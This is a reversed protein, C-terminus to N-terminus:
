RGAFGITREGKRVGLKRRLEDERDDIEILYQDTCQITTKGTEPNHVASIIRDTNLIIEKGEKIFAVFSM